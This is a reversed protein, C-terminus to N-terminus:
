AVAPCGPKRLVWCNTAASKQHGPRAEKTQAKTAPQAVQWCFLTFVCGDVRGVVGIGEEQERGKRWIEQLRIVSRGRDDPNSRISPSSSYSISFIRCWRPVGDLQEKRIRHFPNEVSFSEQSGSRFKFCKFDVRASYLFLCGKTNEEYGERGKVMMVMSSEEGVSGESELGRGEHEINDEEEKSVEEGIISAIM